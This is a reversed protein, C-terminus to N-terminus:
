SCHMSTSAVVAFCGYLTTHAADAAPVTLKAKVLLPPSDSNQSQQCVAAASQPFLRMLQQGSGM